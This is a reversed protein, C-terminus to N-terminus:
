TRTKEAQYMLHALRDVLEEDKQLEPYGLIQFQWHIQEHFFCQWTSEMPLTKTDIYIRQKEYCARGLCGDEHIEPDDLVVEITIGM